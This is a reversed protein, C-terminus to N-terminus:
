QSIHGMTELRSHWHGDATFPHRRDHGRDSQKGTSNLHDAHIKRSRPTLITRAQRGIVGLSTTRPGCHFHPTHSLTQYGCGPQPSGISSYQRRGGTHGETLKQFLARAPTLVPDMSCRGLRVYRDPHLEPAPGLTRPRPWSRAPAGPGGPKRGLHLIMMHVLLEVTSEWPPADRPSLPREPHHLRAIESKWRARRFEPRRRQLISATQPRM